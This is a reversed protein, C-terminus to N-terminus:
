LAVGTIQVPPRVARKKIRLVDALLVAGGVAASESTHYTELVPVAESWKWCRAIRECVELRQTKSLPALVQPAGAELVIDYAGEKDSPPPMRHLSSAAAMWEDSLNASNRTWQALTADAVALQQLVNLDHAVAAHLHATPEGRSAALVFPNDTCRLVADLLYDQWSSHGESALAKFLEAFHEVPDGRHLTSLLQRFAGGPKSKLVSQYLLLSSSSKLLIDAQREM